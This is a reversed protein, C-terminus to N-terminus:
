RTAKRPKVRGIYINFINTDGPEIIDMINLKLERAVLRAHAVSLQHQQRFWRSVAKTDLGSLKALREILEYYNVDRRLDLNPVLRVFSQEIAKLRKVDMGLGKCLTVPTLPLKLRRINLRRM